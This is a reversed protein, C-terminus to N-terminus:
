QYVFTQLEWVNNNVIDEQYKFAHDDTAISKINSLETLM